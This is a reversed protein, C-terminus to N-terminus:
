LEAKKVAEIVTEDNFNTCKLLPIEHAKCFEDLYVRGSKAAARDDHLTIALDLKGGVEYLAEMCSLGLQVCTVFGFRM